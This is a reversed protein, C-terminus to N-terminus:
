FFSSFFACFVVSTCVNWGHLEWGELPISCIFLLIFITSKFCHKVRCLSFTTKFYATKSCANLPQTKTKSTVLHLVQWCHSTEGLVQSLHLFLYIFFLTVSNTQRLSHIPLPNSLAHHATHSGSELKTLLSALKWYNGKSCNGPRKNHWLSHSQWVWLKLSLFTCM